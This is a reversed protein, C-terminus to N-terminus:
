SAEGSRRTDVVTPRGYLYGQMWMAGQATLMAAEAETEVGECVLDAGIGRSFVIMMRAVALRLPDTDLGRVIAADLKIVDPNLNIVHRLSAFGAGADDIAVRCGSERLPALISMVLAYDAVPVHETLEVVIRSLDLGALEDLAGESLAQPSVNVSLFADSPIEAFAERAARLAARSACASGAAIPPPSGDM